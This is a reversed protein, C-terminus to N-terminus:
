KVALKGVATFPTIWRSGGCAYEYIGSRDAVVPIEVRTGAPVPRRVDLDPILFWHPKGVSTVQFILLVGRGERDVAVVSPECRGGQAVVEFTVRRMEAPLAAPAPSAAKGCGALLLVVLLLIMPVPVELAFLVRSGLM